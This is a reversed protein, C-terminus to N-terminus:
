VSKTLVVLQYEVIFYDLESCAIRKTEGVKARITPNQQRNRSVLTLQYEYEEGGQCYSTIAIYRSLTTDKFYFQCGFSEM